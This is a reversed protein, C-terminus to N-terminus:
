GKPEPQAPKEESRTVIVVHQAGESGDPYRARFVVKLESWGKPSDFVVYSPRVGSTQSVFLLRDLNSALLLYDASQAVIRKVSTYFTPEVQRPIVEKGDAFVAVPSVAWIASGYSEGTKGKDIPFVILGEGSDELQFELAFSNPGFFAIFLILPLAFIRNSSMNIM